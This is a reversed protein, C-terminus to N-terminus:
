VTEPESAYASIPVRMGFDPPSYEYRSAARPGITAYMYAQILIITKPGDEAAIMHIVNAFYRTVNKSYQPEGAGGSFNTVATTM